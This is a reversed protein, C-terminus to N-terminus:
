SPFVCYKKALALIAKEKEHFDQILADQIFVAAGRFNSLATAEEYTSFLVYSVVGFIIAAAFLALTVAIRLIDTRNM